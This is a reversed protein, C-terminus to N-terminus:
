PWASSRPHLDLKGGPRCDPSKYPARDNPYMYTWFFDALEDAYAGNVHLLRGLRGMGQMGYCEAKAESRIGTAHQAEHSLVLLAQAADAKVSPQEPRAGRYVLRDLWECVVPALNAAAGHAEVFGAVTRPAHVEALKRRWGSRSYCTAATQEGVLRSAAVTYRIQTRMGRSPGEALPIGFELGPMWSWGEEVAANLPRWGLQAEPPFGSGFGEAQLREGAKGARECLEATDSALEELRKSPPAGRAVAKQACSSWARVIHQLTKYDRTGPTAAQRRSARTLISEAEHYLPEFSKHWRMWAAAWELDARSAFKGTSPGVAEIPIEVTEATSTSAVTTTSPKVATSGGSCSCLVWALLALVPLRRSM